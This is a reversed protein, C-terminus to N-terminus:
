SQNLHSKFLWKPRFLRIESDNKDIIVGVNDSGFYVTLDSQKKKPPKNVYSDFQAILRYVLPRCRGNPAM